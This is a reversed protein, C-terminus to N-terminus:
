APQAAEARAYRASLILLGIGVLMVAAAYWMGVIFSETWDRLVGIVLPSVISTMTSISAVLAMGVAHRERALSASVTAWFTAMAAYAGIGVITLGVMKLVPSGATACIVWGSAAVAMAFATYWVRQNSRDSRAGFFLMVPVAALPPIASLMSILVIRDTDLLDRVILPIWAGLVTSTSMMCFSTLGFGIVRPNRIEDLFRPKAVADGQQAKKRQNEDQIRRQLATKEEETLWNVQAPTNPLVYYAAIGVLVSPLGEMIFLWQWGKLGWIGDMQLILGSVPAGVVLAIPMATMFISNAQARKSDPFWTGLYYLIGPFLGAEALGLVARLSYLSYPGVAFMTAVSAIGWTIMIRPIWIRAGFRAMMMNSPVEAAIYPIYFAANAIGFMTATLGLDANMTLAAFGVNVRDIYALLYFLMLLPM